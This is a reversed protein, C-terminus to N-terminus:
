SQFQGGTTVFGLSGHLKSQISSDQFMLAFGSKWSSGFNGHLLKKKIGRGPQLKHFTRGGFKLVSLLQELPQSQRCRRNM